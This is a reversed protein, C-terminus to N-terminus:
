RYVLAVRLRKPSANAKIKTGRRGEKGEPKRAAPPPPPRACRRPPFQSSPRSAPAFLSLAIFEWSSSSAPLSFRVSVM